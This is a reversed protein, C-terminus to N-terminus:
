GWSRPLQHRQRVVGSCIRISVEPSPAASVAAELGEVPGRDARADGYVPDNGQSVGFGDGCPCNALPDQRRAPGARLPRPCDPDHFGATRLRRPGSRTHLYRAETWPPGQRPLLGQVLGTGYDFGFGRALSGIRGILSPTISGRTTSPSRPRPRLHSPLGAMADHLGDGGRRGDRHDDGRDRAM